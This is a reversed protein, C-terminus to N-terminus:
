LSKFVKIRKILEYHVDPNIKKEWFIFYLLNYKYIIIRQSRKIREFCVKRALRLWGCQGTEVVMKKKQIETNKLIKRTGKGGIVYLFIVNKDNIGSQFSLVPLYLNCNERVAGRM